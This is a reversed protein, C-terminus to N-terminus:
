SNRDSECVSEKKDDLISEVHLKSTSKLKCESIYYILLMAQELGARHGHLSEFLAMSAPPLSPFLAQSWGISQM